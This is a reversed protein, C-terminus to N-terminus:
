RPLTGAPAISVGTMARVNDVLERAIAAPQEAGNAFRPFDWLGAWRRGEPWRLVLVRGRRRVLVAAERVADAGSRKRHRFKRQRGQQM